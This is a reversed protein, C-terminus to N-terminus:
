LKKFAENIKFPNKYNLKIRSEKSNVILDSYLKEYINPKFIQLFWKLLPIKILFKRNRNNRDILKILGTTSIYNDDSILFVGGLQREIIKNIGYCLNGIYVFTRRNKIGAFPLIPFKNVINILKSINGPAKDGYIMPLRVISVTFNDDNLKELLKEAEFKSKGYATSPNIKSNEKILKLSSDYVAISSIFVFQKVGKNKAKRALNFPYLVNIKYYDDYHKKKTQHVLAACHLICDINEFKLSSLPSKLLSFKKFTYLDKYTKIFQSGLYGSAGTIIINKM